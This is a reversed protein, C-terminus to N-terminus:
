KTNTTQQRAESSSPQGFPMYAAGLIIGPKEHTGEQVM